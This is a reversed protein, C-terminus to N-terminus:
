LTGTFNQTVQLAGTVVGATTGKMLVIAGSGAPGNLDPAEGPSGIVLDLLKATTSATTPVPGRGDLNGTALTAGFEDNAANDFLPHLDSQRFTSRPTLSGGRLIAIAGASSNEGPIGIVLDPTATTTDVNGIALAAGFRDGAVSPVNKLTRVVLPTLGGAAVIVTGTAGPAGIVLENGPVNSDVDGIALAAGFLLQGSAPLLTGSQTVMASWLLTSEPPKRGAYTFVYGTSGQHYPVGVALDAKGNGDLDGVALAGGFDDGTAARGFSLRTANAVLSGCSVVNQYLYVAGSRATLATFPIANRDGPAGVVLADYLAGDAVGTSAKCPDLRTQGTIPGSALTAGFRDGSEDTYGTNQQTLKRDVAPKGATNGLFTFVAGANGNAGPAGVALDKIGDADFDLATLAAGFRGNVTVTGGFDLETLSNWAVLGASTGKYLVVKGANANIILNPFTGTVVDEDPIGVALDDYGDGDWDGIAVARGYHDNTENTAWPSAYMRYLTNADEVSFGALRTGGGIVGGPVNSTMVPCVCGDGDPDASALFWPACFATTSYHMISAFDYPGVDTEGSKKDFQSLSGSQICGTNITISADRDSRSQEHWLGMAHLMEHRLTSPNPQLNYVIAQPLTTDALHGIPFVITQEGGAMGVTNSSGGFNADAPAWDLTVYNAAVLASDEVFNMSLKQAMAALTTRVQTRIDVCNTKSTGCVQGTFGPAFRFNIRSNPWRNGLSVAGGRLHALREIPGLDIDGEHIAHGGSVVYTITRMGEPTRVRLRGVEGEHSAIVDDGGADPGPASAPDTNPICSTVLLLSWLLNNSPRLKSLM